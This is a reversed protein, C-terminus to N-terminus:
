GARRLRQARVWDVLAAHVAPDDREPEVLRVELADAQVAALAEIPGECSVTIGDVAVSLHDRRRM